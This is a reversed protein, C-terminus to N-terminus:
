LEQTNKGEPPDRLSMWNKILSEEGVIYGGRTFSSYVKIKESDDQFLSIEKFHLYLCHVM